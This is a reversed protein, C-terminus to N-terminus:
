KLLGATTGGRVTFSTPAVVGGERSENCNLSSCLCDAWDFLIADTADLRFPMVTYPGLLSGMSTNMLLPSVTLATMRFANSACSAVHM